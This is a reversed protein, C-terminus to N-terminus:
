RSSIDYNFSSAVVLFNVITALVGSGFAFLINDTRHAIWFHIILMPISALFMGLMKKATYVSDVWLWQGFAGDMIGMLIFAGAHLLLLWAFYSLFLLLISFLLKAAFLKIRSHSRKLLTNWVNHKHEIYASLATLLTIFLPLMLFSWLTLNNQIFFRAPTMRDVFAAGSIYTQIGMLLVM